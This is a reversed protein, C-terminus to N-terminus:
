EFAVASQPHTDTYNERAQQLALDIEFGSSPTKSHAIAMLFTRQVSVGAFLPTKELGSFQILLRM